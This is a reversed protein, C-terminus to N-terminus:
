RPIRDIDGWNNPAVGDEACGWRHLAPTESYRVNHVNIDGDHYSLDVIGDLVSVLSTILADHVAGERDAYRCYKGLLMCDPDKKM